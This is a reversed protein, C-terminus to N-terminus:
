NNKQRPQAPFKEPPQGRELFGGNRADRRRQGQQHFVADVQRVGDAQHFLKFGAGGGGGVQLLPPFFEGGAGRFKGLHGGAVPQNRRQKDPHHGARAFVQGGTEIARRFDVVRARNVAGLDRKYETSGIAESNRPATTKDCANKTMLMNKGSMLISVMILPPSSIATFIVHNIKCMKYDGQEPICHEDQQRAARKRHQHMKQERQRHVPAVARQKKQIQQFGDQLASLRHFLGNKGGRFILSRAM